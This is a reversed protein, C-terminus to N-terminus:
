RLKELPSIMSGVRSPGLLPIVVTRDSSLMESEPLYVRIQILKGSQQVSNKLWHWSSSGKRINLDLSSKREGTLTKTHKHYVFM